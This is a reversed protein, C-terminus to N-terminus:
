PVSQGPHRGYRVKAAEVTSVAAAVRLAEAEKDLLRALPHYDCDYSRPLAPPLGKIEVHQEALLATFDSQSPPTAIQHQVSSQVATAMNFTSSAAVKEVLCM